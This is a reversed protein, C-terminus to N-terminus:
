IHVKRERKKRMLLSLFTRFSLSFFRSNEIGKRANPYITNLNQPLAPLGARKRESDSSVCCTRPTNRTLDDGEGQPLTSIKSKQSPYPLPKHHLTWFGSGEKCKGGIYCLIYQTINTCMSFYLLTSKLRGVFILLTLLVLM